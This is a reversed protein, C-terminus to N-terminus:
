IWRLRHLQKMESIEKHIEGFVLNGITKFLWKWPDIKIPAIDLLTVTGLIIVGPSTIFEKLNNLIDTLM